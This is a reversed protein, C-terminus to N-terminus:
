VGQNAGIAKDIRTNINASAQKIKADDYNSLWTFLRYVDAHAAAVNQLANSSSKFNQFRVNYVDDLANNSSRLGMFGTIGLLLMLVLVVGPSLLFKQRINM